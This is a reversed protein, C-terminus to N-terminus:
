WRFYAYTITAGHNTSVGSFYIAWFMLMDYLKTQLFIFVHM